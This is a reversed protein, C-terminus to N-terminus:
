RWILDAEGTQKETATGPWKTWCSVIIKRYGTSYKPVEWFVPGLQADRMLNMM